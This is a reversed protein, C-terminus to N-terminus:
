PHPLSYLSHCSRICCGFDNGNHELPLHLRIKVVWKLNFKTYNIYLKKYIWMVPHANSTSKQYVLLRSKM